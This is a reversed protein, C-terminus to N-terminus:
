ETDLLKDSFGRVEKRRNESINAYHDKTVQINEHGLADAVAYLDKCEEYYATGFTRRLTHPTVAKITVYSGYLNVLREVSRTTLRHHEKGRSGLFLAAEKNDPDLKQREDYIYEKLTDEVYEGFYITQEKGGKRIIHIGRQEWDIDDINIGVLESVRIGTAGLLTIIAADRESSKERYYKTKQPINETMVANKIIKHLGQKDLRNQEKKRLKPSGIVKAPNSMLEDSFDFYYQFFARLAALHRARTAADCQIIKEKDEHYQLYSMYEQIDYPTLKNIDSLGIDKIKKINPNILIMWEFFDIIDGAYGLMTSATRNLTGTYYQFFSNCFIPMKDIQAYLRQIQKQHLQKQYDM